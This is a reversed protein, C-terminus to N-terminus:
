SDKLRYGDDIVFTEDKNAVTADKLESQAM